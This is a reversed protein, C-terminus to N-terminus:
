GEGELLDTVQEVTLTGFFHVQLQRYTECYLDQDETTRHLKRYLAMAETEPLLLAVTNM